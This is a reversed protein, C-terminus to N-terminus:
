DEDIIRRQAGYNEILLDDYYDAKLLINKILTVGSEISIDDEYTIFSLLVSQNNVSFVLGESNYNEKLLFEYINIINDKPLNCLWADAVIFRSEPNYLVKVIASGQELEWTNFGVRSEKINKGLKEIILDITNATGVAVYPKPNLVELKIQEGCNSCYSGEIQSEALIKKCSKCRIAKEKGVYKYDNLSEALYKVPLSFGLSEGQAIIFTNVGVIEANANVLPGGSNGPNIAADIQIYDIENYPRQAKSVIGQTATYKLGYPHGIAIISDGERVPTQSIPAEPIELGEPVEIFALDYLPDFYVVKSTTKKFSKGSIIVEENGEIVHFNTIFLNHEKNYFGTGNGFPSAIQIIVNKYYEIINNM